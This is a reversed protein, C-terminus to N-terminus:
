GLARLATEPAKDLVRLLAKAAGTPCRKGQEWNRITEHPVDIRRAFEVQTLGLRRRVRRAYRAMDRMAEADDQAQQAALDQDTTADLVAHDVRGEPLSRPDDPDIRVRTTSM